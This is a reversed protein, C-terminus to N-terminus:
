PEGVQSDCTSLLVPDEASDLPPSPDSQPGSTQPASSPIHAGDVCAERVFRFDKRPLLGPGLSPSSPGQKQAM